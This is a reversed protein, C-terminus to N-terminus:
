FQLILLQTGSRHQLIDVMHDAHCHSLFFHSAVEVEIGDEGPSFAHPNTFNDCRIGLPLPCM